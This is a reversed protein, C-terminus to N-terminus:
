VMCRIKPNVAKEVIPILDQMGELIPKYNRDLVKHILDAFTQPRPSLTVNQDSLIFIELRLRVQWPFLNLNTPQLSGNTPYGGLEYFAKLTVNDHHQVVESGNELLKILKKRSQDIVDINYVHECAM